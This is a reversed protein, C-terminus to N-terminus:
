KMAGGLSGSFFFRPQPKESHWWQELERGALEWIWCLMLWWRHCNLFFINTWRLSIEYWPRSSFGHWLCKQCLKMLKGSTSIMELLGVAWSLVFCRIPQLINRQCSRGWCVAQFWLAGSNQALNGCSNWMKLTGTAVNEIPQCLFYWSELLIPACPNLFPLSM